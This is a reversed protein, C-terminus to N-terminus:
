LHKMTQTSIATQFNPTSIVGKKKSYKTLPAITAMFINKPRLKRCFFYLDDLLQEKNPEKTSPCFHLEKNLLSIESESLDTSFINCITDTTKMKNM